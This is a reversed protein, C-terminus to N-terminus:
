DQADDGSDMIGNLSNRAAAEMVRLAGWLGPTADIGFGALGAAVAGYDLGQWYVRVPEMGGGIPATRWQTCVSLFACLAEWNEPWVEFEIAGSEAEIRAIEDEPLGM